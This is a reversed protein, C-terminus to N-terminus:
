EGASKYMAGAVAGYVVWGLLTIGFWCWSLYYPFGSITLPQYFAGIGGILGLWMGFTAGGKPGHAWMTRTKGFLVGAALGMLIAIIPFWMPNGDQRFSAINAYTNGMIVGHMIWEYVALAVGGVAGATLAKSMTEEEGTMIKQMAKSLQIIQVAIRGENLSVFYLRYLWAM